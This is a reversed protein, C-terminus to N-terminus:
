THRPQARPPQPSAGLHRDQRPPPRVGESCDACPSVARQGGRRGTSRAARACGACLCARLHPWCPRANRPARHQMTQYPDATAAGCGRPRSRQTLLRAAAFPPRPMSCCRPAGQAASKHHGPAAAQARLRVAASPGCPPSGIACPCADAGTLGGAPPPTGQAPARRAPPSVTGGGSM